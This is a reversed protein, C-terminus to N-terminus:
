RMCIPLDPGPIAESLKHQAIFYECHRKYITDTQICSPILPPYLLHMLTIVVRVGNPGWASFKGWNYSEVM